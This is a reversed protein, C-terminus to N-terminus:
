ALILAKPRLKALLLWYPSIHLVDSWANLAEMAQIGAKVLAMVGANDQLPKWVASHSLGLHERRLQGHSTLTVPSGILFSDRRKKTSRREEKKHKCICTPHSSKSICQKM